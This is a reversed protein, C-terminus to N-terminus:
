LYGESFYHKVWLNKIEVKEVSGGNWFFLTPNENIVEQPEVLFEVRVWEDKKLYSDLGFIHTSGDLNLVARTENIDHRARADFGIILKSGKRLNDLDLAISASYNDYHTVQIIRDGEVEYSQGKIIAPDSTTLNFSIEDELIWHDHAYVRARKEFRLFNDWYQEQTASGGTLIGHRIQYAQAFNTFVLITVVAGLAIKRIIFQGSELLKLDRLILALIFGLLIYHDIMVRQGMGAGYYWCWWSSFVYISVLYFTLGIAFRKKCFKFLLPFGFLLIILALPTYTLWGKLYSFVFEGFHPHAFDFGEEGYSYVIWNGTQAKWLLFPIILVALASFTVPLLVKPKFLTKLLNKYFRIEPIFFFVLGVVLVNTPRTIGILAILFAALTLTVSRNIKVENPEPQESNRFKLLLFLFWNILFFNYIHTVSQDYISYFIMNTGLLILAASWNAIKVSFNMKQLVKIMGVLGFFLYFWLGIDFCVQYITSYGDAELGFLLALGHAILFFPLYLIAVGPFTKNVKGEGAPKLFSKRNFEPYYKENIEDVFEYSLDQYIFLAPLYAYYAQADGAIPREYPNNFDKSFLHFLFLSLVLLLPVKYTKISNIM